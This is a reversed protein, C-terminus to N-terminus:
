PPELPRDWFRDLDRRSDASTATSTGSSGAASSGSAEGWVDRLRAGRGLRTLRTEEFLFVRYPFLVCELSPLQCVLM